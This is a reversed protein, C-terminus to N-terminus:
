VISNFFEVAPYPQMHEFIKEGDKWVQYGGYLSLRLEKRMIGCRAFLVTTKERFESLESLDIVLPKLKNTKM